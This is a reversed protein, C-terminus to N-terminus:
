SDSDSPGRLGLPSPAGTVGPGASLRTGRASGPVASSPTGTRRPGASSRPGGGGVSAASTRASRAPASHIPPDTATGLGELATRIGTLHRSSVEGEGLLTGNVDAGEEAGSAEALSSRKERGTQPQTQAGAKRGPATTPRRAGETAEDLGVIVEAREAFRSAKPSTPSAPAPPWQEGLAQARMAGLAYSEKASRRARALAAELKRVEPRVRDERYRDSLHQPM